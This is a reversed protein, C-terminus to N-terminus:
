WLCIGLLMSERGDNAKFFCAAMFELAALLKLSRLLLNRGISDGPSFVAWSVGYAKLWTLGLCPFCSFWSWYEPRCFSHSSVYITNSAVRDYNTICCCFVLISDVSHRTTRLAKCIYPETLYSSMGMKRSFFRM